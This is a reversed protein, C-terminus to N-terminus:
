FIGVNMKEIETALKQYEKNPSIENAKKIDELAKKIEFAEKYTEARLAYYKANNPYVEILKSYDEIANMPNIYNERYIKARLLRSDEFYPKFKLASNVQGLAMKIEGNDYFKKASVYQNHAKTSEIQYGFILACVIFIGLVIITGILIKKQGRRTIHNVPDYSNEYPQYSVPPQYYNYTPNQVPNQTNNKYINNSNQQYDYQRRTNENGLIQYAQVIIKFYEESANNNPNRDPHYKLALKKYSIKIETQSANPSVELIEYLNPM